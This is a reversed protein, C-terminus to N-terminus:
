KNGEILLYSYEQTKINYFYQASYGARKFRYISDIVRQLGFVYKQMDPSMVADELNNTINALFRDESVEINYDEKDAITM